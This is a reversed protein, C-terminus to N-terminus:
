GTPDAIGFIAALKKAKAVAASNSKISAIGSLGEWESDKAPILKRRLAEALYSSHLLAIDLIRNIWVPLPEGAAIQEGAAKVSETLVPWLVPLLTLEKEMIRAFKAPSVVPYNLLTRTTKRIVDDRM